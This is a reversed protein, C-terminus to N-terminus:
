GRERQLMTSSFHISSKQLLNRSMIKVPGAFHSPHYFLKNTQYNPDLPLVSDIGSVQGKFEMCTGQWAHAGWM